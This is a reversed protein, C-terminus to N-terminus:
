LAIPRYSLARDVVEETTPERGFHQRPYFILDGAEPHPVSAVFVDVLDDAEEQTRGEASMARRVLDILEDRSLRHEM